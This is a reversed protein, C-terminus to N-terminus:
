MSVSDSKKMVPLAILAAVVFYAVGTWYKTAPNAGAVSSIFNTVYPGFFSGLGVMANIVSIGTGGPMFKGAAASLTGFVPTYFMMFMVMCVYFVPLSTTGLAAAVLPASVLLLCVSVTKSKLRPILFGAVVFGGIMGGISSLTGMLGTEVTTGIQKETLVYGSYNTNWTATGFNALLFILVVLAFVATYKASAKSATKVAESNAAATDVDAKVASDNRYLVAFLVLTVAAPLCVMYARTWVGDKALIGALVTMIMSGLCGVANNVSIATSANTPDMEVLMTNTANSTLAYGIGCLIVGALGIYFTTGGFLIIVLGGAVIFLLGAEVLLKKNLRGMIGSMGLSLFSSVLTPVSFFLVILNPSVNPFWSAISALIAAAIFMQYSFLSALYVALTNRNLTKM